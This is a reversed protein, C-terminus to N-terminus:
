RWEGDSSCGPGAGRREASRRAGGVVDEEGRGRERERMCAEVRQADRVEFVSGLPSAGFGIISVELGTAGLPRRPLRSASAAM